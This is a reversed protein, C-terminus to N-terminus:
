IQSSDRAAASLIQFIEKFASLLVAAVQSCPQFLNSRAYRSHPPYAKSTMLHPSFFRPKEM